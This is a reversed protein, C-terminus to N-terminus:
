VLGRKAAWAALGARGTVGLRRQARAIHDEVTRESLVLRRAVEANTAGAAVLVAVEEERISLEGERAKPRGRPRGAKRRIGQARMVGELRARQTAAGAEVALGLAETALLPRVQSPGEVAALAMSATRAAEVANKLKIFDETASWLVDVAGAEKSRAMSAGHLQKRAALFPPYPAREIPETM